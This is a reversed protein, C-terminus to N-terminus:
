RSKSSPLYLHSNRFNEERSSLIIMAALFILCMAGNVDSIACIFKHSAPLKGNTHRFWSDSILIDITVALMFNPAHKESLSDTAVTM